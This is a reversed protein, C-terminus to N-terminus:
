GAYVHRSVARVVAAGAHVMLPGVAALQLSSDLYEGLAAPVVTGVLDELVADQLRLAQVLVEVKRLVQQALSSLAQGIRM